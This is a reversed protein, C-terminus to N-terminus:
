AASCFIRNIVKEISGKDDFDIVGAIGTHEIVKAEDYRLGSTWAIVPKNGAKKVLTSLLSLSDPSNLPYVNVFVLSSEEFPNEEFLIQEVNNSNVVAPKAAKDKIGLILSADRSTIAAEPFM